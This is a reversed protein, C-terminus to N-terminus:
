GTDRPTDMQSVMPQRDCADRIRSHAVPVGRDYMDTMALVKALHM